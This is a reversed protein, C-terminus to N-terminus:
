ADPTDERVLAVVAARAEVYRHRGEIARDLAAERSAFDYETEVTEYHESNLIHMDDEADLLERTADRLATLDPAAGARRVMPVPNGYCEDCIDEKEPDPTPNGCLSCRGPPYLGAINREDASTDDGVPVDATPDYVTGCTVCEWKPTDSEAM